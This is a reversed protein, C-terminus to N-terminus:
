LHVRSEELITELDERSFVNTLWPNGGAIGKKLLEKLEQGEEGHKHYTYKLKGVTHKWESIYKISPDELIRVIKETQSPDIVRIDLEPAAYARRLIEYNTM